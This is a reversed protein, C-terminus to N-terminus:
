IIAPIACDSKLVGTCVYIIFLFGLQANVFFMHGLCTGEIVSQTTHSARRTFLLKHVHVIEILLSDQAHMCFHMPMGGSANGSWQLARTCGVHGAPM